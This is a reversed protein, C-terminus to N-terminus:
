YIVKGFCRSLLPTNTPPCLEKYRTHANAEKALTSDIMPIQRTLSPSASQAYSIQKVFLLCVVLCLIVVVTYKQILSM